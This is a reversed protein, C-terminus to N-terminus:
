FKLNIILCPVNDGRDCFERSCLRKPKRLGSLSSLQCFYYNTCRIVKRGEGKAKGGGRGDRGQGGRETEKRNRGGREGGRTEEEGM